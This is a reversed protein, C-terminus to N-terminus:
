RTKFKKDPYFTRPNLDTWKGLVETLETFGHEQWDDYLRVLDARIGPLKDLTIKLYGNIEKLKKMTTLAQVSVYLNELFDHNHNSHTGSVVLLSTICKVHTNVVVTPKGFKALLVAKAKWYGILVM